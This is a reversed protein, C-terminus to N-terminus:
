SLSGLVFIFTFCVTLYMYCGVIFLPRHSNIIVHRDSMMGSSQESDAAPSRFSSLPCDSPPVSLLLIGDLDDYRKDTDVHGRCCEAEFCKAYFDVRKGGAKVSRNM